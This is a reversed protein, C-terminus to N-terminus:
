TLLSETGRGDKPMRSSRLGQKFPAYKWTPDLHTYATLVREALGQHLVDGGVLEPNLLKVPSGDGQQLRNGAYHLRMRPAQLLACVAGLRDVAIGREEIGRRVATVEDASCYVGGEVLANLATGGFIRARPIGKEEVLYNTAADGLTLRDDVGKDHHRSGGAFVTADGSFRDFEAAVVNLGAAFDQGPHAGDILPHLAHAVIVNNPQSQGHELSM